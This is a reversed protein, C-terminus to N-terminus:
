VTILNMIFYYGIWVSWIFLAATLLERKAEKREQNNM